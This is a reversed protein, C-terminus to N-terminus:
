PVTPSSEKHTHALMLSTKALDVARMAHWDSDWAHPQQGNLGFKAGWAPFM